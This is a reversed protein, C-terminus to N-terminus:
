KIDHNAKKILMLDPLAVYLRDYLVKVITAILLGFVPLLALRLPLTGLAAKRSFHLWIAMTNAASALLYTILIIIFWNFGRPKRTFLSPVVGWMLSSFLFLPYYGQILGFSTDAVAAVILGYLPGLFLGALILPISYFPFGFTEVPLWMDFMLKLVVSLAALIAGLAIKKLEIQKM